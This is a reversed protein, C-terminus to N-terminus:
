VERDVIKKSRYKTTMKDAGFALANLLHKCARPAKSPNTINPDKGNSWRVSSSEDSWLAVECNYLFYECTCTVWVRAGKGRGYYDIELYQPRGSGAARDTARAKITKVKRGETDKWEKISTYFVVVNGKNKWVQPHTKKTADIISKVTYM